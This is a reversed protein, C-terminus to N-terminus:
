LLYFVYYTKDNEVITFTQHGDVIGYSLLKLRIDVRKSKQLWAAKDIFFMNGDPRSNWQANHKGGIFDLFFKEVIHKKQNLERGNSWDGYYKLYFSGMHIKEWLEEWTLGEASHSQVASAPKSQKPAAAPAQTGAAPAEDWYTITRTDTRAYESGRTVRRKTWNGHSDTSLVKYSYTVNPEGVIANPMSESVLDNGSYTMTRMDWGWEPKSHKYSSKSKVRGKSDYTYRETKSLKGRKRDDGLGDFLYHYVETIYGKSDRRCDTITADDALTGKKGDKDFTYSEYNMTGFDYEFVTRSTKVHGNLGFAAADYYKRAAAPLLSVLCLLVLLTKQKM